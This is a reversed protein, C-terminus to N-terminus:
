LGCFRLLHQQLFVHKLFFSASTFLLAILKNLKKLVITNGCALTPVVKWPFMLLPFNWPINQGAIGIPEHLTQVHNNGDASITLGRIKDAWGAYYRFFRALM